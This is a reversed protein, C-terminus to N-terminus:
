PLRFLQGWPKIVGMIVRFERNYTRYEYAKLGFYKLRGSLRKKWWIKSKEHLLFFMKPITCKFILSKNKLCYTYYIPVYLLSNPTTEVSIRSDQKLVTDGMALVDENSSHGPEVKKWTIVLNKPYMDVHCPLKITTGKDVLQSRGINLFNISYDETNCDELFQDPRCTKCGQVSLISPFLIWLLKQM